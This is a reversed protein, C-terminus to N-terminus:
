AKVKIKIKSATGYGLAIETNGTVILIPGKLPMINKVTVTIGERLGMESLRLNVSRGQPLSYIQGIMGPKLKNLYEIKM